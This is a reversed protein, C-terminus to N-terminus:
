FTQLSLSGHILEEISALYGAELDAKLSKTVGIIMTLKDYDTVDQRELTEEIQKSYASKPGSIREIAARSRTMLSHVSDLGMDSLDDYKSQAKLADHSEVISNLQELFHETFNKHVM